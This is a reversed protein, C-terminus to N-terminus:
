MSLTFRIPISYTVRVPKGMQKGPIWKPSSSIVRIAEQDLDPYVQSIAKVNTIRGDKEVIFEVNVVGSIGMVRPAEPYKLEKTLFANFAEPGGPFEPMDEVFRLPPEKGTEEEIIEIPKYEVVEEETFESTFIFDSKVLVDNDVVEIVHEQIQEQEPQQTEQQDTSQITEDFIQVSEEDQITLDKGKDSTAFLEFGAYILSLIIVLGILLYSGKKKDINGKASKKEIM